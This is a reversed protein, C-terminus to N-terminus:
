EEEDIIVVLRRAMNACSELCNVRPQVVLLVFANIEPSGILLLLDLIYVMRRDLVILDYYVNPRVTILDYTSQRLHSALM